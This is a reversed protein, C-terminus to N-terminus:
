DEKMGHIPFLSHIDPWAAVCQGLNRPRTSISKVSANTSSVNGANTNSVASDMNNTNECEENMVDLLVPDLLDSIMNRRAARVEKVRSYLEKDHCIPFIFAQAGINLGNRPRRVRQDYRDAAFFDMPKLGQWEDDIMNEQTHHNQNYNNGQNDNSKILDHNDDWVSLKEHTCKTNAIKRKKSSSFSQNPPLPPLIGDGNGDTSIEHADVAADVLNQIYRATLEALLFTTSPDVQEPNVDGSGHMLLPLDPILAKVLEAYAKEDRNLNCRSDEDDNKKTGENTTTHIIVFDENSVISKPALSKEDNQDMELKDLFFFFVFSVILKWLIYQLPGLSTKLEFSIELSNYTCLYERAM